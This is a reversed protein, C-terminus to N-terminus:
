GIGASFARLWVTLGEVRRPRSHGNGRGTRKPLSEMNHPHVFCGVSSVYNLQLVRLHFSLDEGEKGKENQRQPSDKEGRLLNVHEPARLVSYFTREHCM